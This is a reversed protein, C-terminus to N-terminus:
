SWDGGSMDGGFDSSASDDGGWSSADTMGFDQDGLAETPRRDIPTDAAADSGHGRDLLSHALAEGAVIGAGVGLGTALGGAISSGIGSSGPMGGAPGNYYPGPATGPAYGTPNMMSVSRSRARLALFALIAIGVLLAVAIWPVSSSAGRAAAPAAGIDRRLREVSAPKVFPLGPALTEARALEARAGSFDQRAALLRAHVYHAKASNPNAELVQTIMSEAEATRGAKAAAYVEDVTPTAHAAATFLAILLLLPLRLRM